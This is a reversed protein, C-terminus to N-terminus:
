VIIRSIPRLVLVMVLVMATPPGPPETVLDSYWGLCWGLERIRYSTICGLEGGVWCWVLRVTATVVSPGLGFVGLGLGGLRLMPIKWLAEDPQGPTRM